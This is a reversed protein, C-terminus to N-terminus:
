GGNPGKGQSSTNPGKVAGLNYELHCVPGQSGLSLDNGLPTHALPFSRTKAAGNRPSQSMFKAESGQEKQKATHRQELLQGTEM